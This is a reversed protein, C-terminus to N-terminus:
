DPNFSEERTEPRDGRSRRRVNVKRVSSFVPRHKVGGWGQTDTGQMPLVVFDLAESSILSFLPATM